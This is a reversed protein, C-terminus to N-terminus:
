PAGTEDAQKDELMANIEDATHQDLLPLIQQRAVDSMDTWFDERESQTMANRSMSDAVMVKKQPTISVQQFRGTLILLRAKMNETTVGTAKALAAIAVFMKNNFRSNVPNLVDVDVVAGIKLKSLMGRADDDHPVLGNKIVSFLTM